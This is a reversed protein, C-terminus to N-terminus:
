PGFTISSDSPPTIAEGTNCGLHATLTGDDNFELTARVGAPVTGVTNGTTISELTWPADHDSEADPIVTEEDTLVIVTSGSALTLSDSPQAYPHSSSTLIKAFWTDQDMLPADCAMETTALSGDAVACHATQGPPPVM